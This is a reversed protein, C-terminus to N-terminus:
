GLALLLRLGLWVGSLISGAGLTLLVVCGPPAPITPANAPYPPKEIGAKAASQNEEVYLRLDATHKFWGSRLDEAYGGGASASLYIESRYEGPSLTRATVSFDIPVSAGGPLRIPLEMPRVQLWPRQTAVMRVSLAADGDNTLILTAPGGGGSVVRVGEPETGRWSLKAVGIKRPPVQGVFPPPTGKPATSGEAKADDDVPLPPPGVWEPTIIPPVAVTAKPAPAAALTDLANLTERLDALSDCRSLIGAVRSRVAGGAFAGGQPLLGAILVGMAAIDGAVTATGHYVPANIKSAPDSLGFDSLLVRGDDGVLVNNASVGGHVVGRTHAAELASLVPLLLRELLEASHRNQFPALQQALNRGRVVDRVAYTFGGVALWRRTQVVNPHSLSLTENLRAKAAGSFLRKIIVGTGTVGDRALWAASTAGSLAGANEFLSLALRDADPAPLTEPM